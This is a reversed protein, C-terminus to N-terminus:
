ERAIVAGLIRSAAALSASWAPAVLFVEGRGTGPLRRGRLRRRQSVQGPSGPKGGAHRQLVETEVVLGAELAVGDRMPGGSREEGFGGVDDQEPGRPVPLVWRAVPSPSRALPGQERGLDVPGGPKLCLGLAPPQRMFHDPQTAIPQDDDILNTM